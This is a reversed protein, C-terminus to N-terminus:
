LSFLSSFTILSVVVKTASVLLGGPEQGRKSVLIKDSVLNSNNAFTNKELGVIRINFERDWRYIRSYGVLSPLKSISCDSLIKILEEVPFKEVFILKTAAKSRFLQM